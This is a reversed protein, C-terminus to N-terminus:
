ALRAGRREAAPDRGLMHRALWVACIDQGRREVSEALTQWGPRGSERLVFALLARVMPEAPFAVMSDNLVRVAEDSRGALHLALAQSNRIQVLNPCWRCVGELICEAHDHSGLWAALLGLQTLLRVAEFDVEDAVPGSAAPGEGAHGSRIPDDNMRAALLLTM